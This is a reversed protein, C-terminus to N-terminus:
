NALKRDLYFDHLWYLNYTIHLYLESPLMAESEANTLQKETTNKKFPTCQYKFSYNVGFKKFM